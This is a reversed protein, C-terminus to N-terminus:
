EWFFCNAAFALKQLFRSFWHLPLELQFINVKKRKWLSRSLSIRFICWLTNGSRFTKYNKPCSCHLRPDLRSRNQDVTLSHAVSRCELGDIIPPPIILLEERPFSGPINIKRKKIFPKMLWKREESSQEYISIEQSFTTCLLLFTPWTKLLQHLYTVGSLKVCNNWLKLNATPWM